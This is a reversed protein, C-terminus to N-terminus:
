QSGLAINKRLKLAFICPGRVNKKKSVLEIYKLLNCYLICYTGARRCQVAFYTCLEQFLVNLNDEEKKGWKFYSLCRIADLVLFCVM